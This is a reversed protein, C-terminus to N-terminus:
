VEELVKQETIKEVIRFKGAPRKTKITSMIYQAQSFDLAEMFFEWNNGYKAEVIVETTHNQNMIHGIISPKPRSTM